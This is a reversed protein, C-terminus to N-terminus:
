SKNLLERLAEKAEENEPDLRLVEEFDAKASDYEGKARYAKGRRNYASVVGFDMVSGGVSDLLWDVEEQSLIGSNRMNKEREDQMRAGFDEYRRIKDTCIRIEETCDCIENDYDGTAHYALGRYHYVDELSPVRRDGARNAVEIKSYRRIVETYDAAAKEYEGKESYLRGRKWYVLVLEPNLRLAETFDNITNDIKGNLYYTQGRCYYANAYFINGRSEYAGACDPDLMIAETFDNIAEDIRGNLFYVLGRCYFADAFDPDLRIAETFNGIAKDVRKNSGMEMKLLRVRGQGYHAGAFNPDLARARGYANAADEYFGGMFCGEGQEFAAQAAPNVSPKVCMKMKTM